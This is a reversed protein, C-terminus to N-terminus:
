RFAHIKLSFHIQWLSFFHPKKSRLQLTSQLYVNWSCFISISKRFNFQCKASATAKCVPISIKFVPFKDWVATNESILLICFLFVHRLFVFQFCIETSIRIDKEEKIYDCWHFNRFTLRLCMVKYNNVSCWVGDCM